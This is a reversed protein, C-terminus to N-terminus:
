TSPKDDRGRLDEDDMAAVHPLYRFEDDYDLGYGVVFVDPIRFCLYDPQLDVESRGQKSLLVATEVSLAGLAQVHKVLADLTHGTDFIDDVLLVDHGEIEPLLETNVTLEGPRTTPGRYSSAQIVGIRHPIRIQRVLDALFIVSGTLVGLVTLRHNQYRSTLQSGLRAVEDAISQEDLLIQM